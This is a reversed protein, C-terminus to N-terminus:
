PGLHGLMSEPGWITSESGPVCKDELNTGQIADGGRGGPGPLWRGRESGVLEVARSEVCLHHRVTDTKTPSMERLVISNKRRKRM